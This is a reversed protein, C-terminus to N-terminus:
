YALQASLASRGRNLDQWLSSTDKSFIVDQDPDSVSWVGREIEQELEGPRWTVFGVFFRADAPATEIMRDITRANFALYLGASLLLADRGPSEASKVLAYLSGTGSPGGFFVPERVRKSAEHQPFLSALSRDTPRNIILGIHWGAQAPAALLVTQSWASDRMESQAVLVVARDDYTEACATHSFSASFSILGLMLLHVLWYPNM